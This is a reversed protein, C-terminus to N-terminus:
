VVVLASVIIVSSPTLPLSDMILPSRIRRQATVVVNIAAHAYLFEMMLLRVQLFHEWSCLAASRPLLTVGDRKVVVTWQRLPSSSVATNSSVLVSHVLPSVDLAKVAVIPSGSRTM